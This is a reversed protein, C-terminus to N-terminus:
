AAHPQHEHADGIHVTMAPRLGWPRARGLLGACHCRCGPRASRFRCARCVGSGCGAPRCSTRWTLICSHSASWTACAPAPGRASRLLTSSITSAGRHQVCSLAVPQRDPCGRDAWSPRRGGNRFVSSYRRGAGGGPHGYCIAYAARGSEIRVLRHAPPAHTIELRADAIAFGPTSTPVFATAPISGTSTRPGLSISCPM